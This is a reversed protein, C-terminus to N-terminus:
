KTILGFSLSIIKDTKYRKKAVSEFYTQLEMKKPLKSTNMEFTDQKQVQRGEFSFTYFNVFIVYNDIQNKNNSKVLEM